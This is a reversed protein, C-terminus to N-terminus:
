CGAAAVAELLRDVLGEWSMRGAQQAIAPRMARARGPSLSRICEALAEPDEPPVVWGTEGEVVVDPLGGVSTVLVPKGFHYANGVVGSGSAARYPLVVADARAFLDAAEGDSVYRPIVEVRDELGLRRIRAELESRGSWFEGAVTVHLPLDRLRGLAEVLVDVGKYPRVIGFYLLELPARRPLAVRPEPFHDFIPLPCSVVGRGPFMEQLARAAEASHCLYSSGQGLVARTVRAKWWSAEHDVVNHCLFVVAIGRRRAFRALYGFCAGWLFTWWPLVLADPAFAALRRAARRWTTPDLSDIDYAVPPESLPAAAPDRDSEGPFLWQPYQRSFSTVRLEARPALARVLGTTHQAIGSRFPVVPGIVALKARHQTGAQGSM